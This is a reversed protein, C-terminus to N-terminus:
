SRLFLIHFMMTLFWKKKMMKQFVTSIKTVSTLFNVLSLYQIEDCRAVPRLAAETRETSGLWMLLGSTSTLSMIQWRGRLWLFELNWIVSRANLGSVCISLAHSGYWTHNGLKIGTVLNLVLILITIVSQSFQSKIGTLHLPTNVASKASYM